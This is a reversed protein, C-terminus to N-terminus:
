RLKPNSWVSYHHAHHHGAFHSIRTSFSEFAMIPPLKACPSYALLLMKHNVFISIPVVGADIM